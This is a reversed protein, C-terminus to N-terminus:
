VQYLNNILEDRVNEGKFHEIAIKISNDIKIKVENQNSLDGLIKNFNNLDELEYVFGCNHKRFYKSLFYEKPCIVLIPKGSALYEPTKTPFITGIEDEHVKTYQQPDLALVLVDSSQIAKLYDSRNSYFTTVAAGLNIRMKVLNAKSVATALEMMLGSNFICDSLKSMTVKNIGYIDGAWFFKNPVGKISGLKSIGELYTHRLPITEMNYKRKYLDSMGESMVFIQKANNLVITNLEKAFSENKTGINAEYITDHLYIVFPLGLDKAIKEAISLFLLNPYTGIILQVKKHKAIQKIAHIGWPLQIKAIINEFRGLKPMSTLVRKVRIKKNTKIKSLGSNRTIVTFSTENFYSLLNQNLVCSGGPTPPFASTIFLVHGKSYLPPKIIEEGM